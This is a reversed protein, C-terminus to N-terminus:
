LNLMHLFAYFSRMQFLITQCNDYLEETLITAGGLQLFFQLDIFYLNTNEMSPAKSFCVTHEMYTPWCMRDIEKFVKAFGLLISRSTNSISFLVM